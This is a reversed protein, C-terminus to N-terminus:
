RALNGCIECSRMQNIGWPIRCSSSRSFPTQSAGAAASSPNRKQGRRCISINPFTRPVQVPLLPGNRLLKWGGIMGMDCLEDPSPPSHAGVQGHIIRRCSGSQYASEIRPPSWGRTRNKFQSSLVTPFFTTRQPIRGRRPSTPFSGRTRNSIWAGTLGVNSM